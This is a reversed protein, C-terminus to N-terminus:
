RDEFEFAAHLPQERSRTRGPAALVVHRDLHMARLAHDAEVLLPHVLQPKILVGPVLRYLTIAGDHGPRHMLRIAIKDRCRAVLDAEVIELRDLRRAEQACNRAPGLCIRRELLRELELTNDVRDRVRVALADDESISAIGGAAKASR